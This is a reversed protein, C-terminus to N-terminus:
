GCVAGCADRSGGESQQASTFILVPRSTSRTLCLYRLWQREHASAPGCLPVCTGSGIHSLPASGECAAGRSATGGARVPRFPRFGHLVNTCSSAVYSRPAHAGDPRSVHVYDSVQLDAARLSGCTPRRQGSSVAGDAVVATRREATRDSGPATAPLGGLRGLLARPHSSRGDQSCWSLASTRRTGKLRIGQSTALSHKRWGPRGPDLHDKSSSRNDPELCSSSSKSGAASWIQGGHSSRFVTMPIM